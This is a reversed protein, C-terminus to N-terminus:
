AMFSLAMMGLFGVFMFATLINLVDIKKFYSAIALVPLISVASLKIIIILTEEM